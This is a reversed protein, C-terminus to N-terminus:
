AGTSVIVQAARLLRDGHKYGLRLVQAVHDAPIEENPAQLMAEHINPDFEVGVEGIVELGQGELVSELKRVIAAFPGDTLDGHERAASIDDFVPILSSFVSGIANNKAVDRDREVRNRYNVYEAQLRRLDNLLDEERDTHSQEEVDAVIAEAEAIAEEAAADTAAQDAQEAQEPNPQDNPQENNNEDPLDNNQETM